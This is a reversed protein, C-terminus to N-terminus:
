FPIEDDNVDGVVYDEVPESGKTDKNKSTEIFKVASALVETLYQKERNQNEWSRHKVKGEVLILDGKGVYRSVVEALKGLFVVRHWDTVKKDEAKANYDNTAISVTVVQIGNNTFRSEPEKGTRGLLIIKQFM